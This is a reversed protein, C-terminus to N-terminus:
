HGTTESEKDNEDPLIVHQLIHKRALRDWVLIAPQSFLRCWEAYATAIVLQPGVLLLYDDTSAREFYARFHEHLKTGSMKVIGETMFVLEGLSEVERFDNTPSFNTVYVKSM